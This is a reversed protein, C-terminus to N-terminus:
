EGCEDCDDTETYEEVIIPNPKPPEMYQVEKVVRVRRNEANPTNNPTPVKLDEEGASVAIIQSAPIGYEILMKQVAEARRGGLAYNYASSGATDTHGVVSVKVNKNAQTTAALQKIINEYEPKIAAKDFDFRVEFIEEMIRQRPELPIQQVKIITKEPKKVATEPNQISAPASASSANVPDTKSSSASAVTIDVPETKSATANTNSVNINAPAAAPAVASASTNIVIPQNQSESTGVVPAPTTTNVVIPAPTITTTATPTPTAPTTVSVSVPVSVPASNNAPRGDMGDLRANIAALEERLTLMLSIFEERTVYGDDKYENYRVEEQCKNCSQVDGGGDVPAAFCKDCSSTYNDSNNFTDGGDNVNEEGGYINQNFVIPTQQKQPVPIPQVLNNGPVTVNNIIMIGDRSRSVGSMASLRRTEPYYREDDVAVESKAAVPQTYPQAPTTVAGSRDCNRLATMTTQFRDECERATADLGSAAASIWCDFKAQAEAALKPEAFAADNRLENMLDNYATYIEFRDNEDYIRWNDLSEPFPTEGSFAGIAKQAFLEAVEPRGSTRANYLAYSRYNMALQHLFSDSHPADSVNLNEVYDVAPMDYGDGNGTGACGALVCCVALSSPWVWCRNKM